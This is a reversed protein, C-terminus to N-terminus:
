QRDMADRVIDMSLQLEYWYGTGVFAPLISYVDAKLGKPDSDINEIPLKVEDKGATVFKVVMGNDYILTYKQKRTKITTLEGEKLEIQLFLGKKDSISKLNGSRDYQYAYFWRKRYVTDTSEFRENHIFITTDGNEIFVNKYLWITGIDNTRMFWMNKRTVILAGSSDYDSVVSGYELDSVYPYEYVSSKGDRKTHKSARQAEDYTLLVNTSDTYYIATLMGNNEWSFRYFNDDQDYTSALNSRGEHYTYFATDKGNKTNVEFSALLKKENFHFLGVNGYSDTIREPYKGSYHLQLEYKNKDIIKRLRGDWDLLTSEQARFFQYGDSTVQMYAGPFETSTLKTGVTLKQPVIWGRKIYILWWKNRLEEDNLLQDKLQIYDEPTSIESHQQAVTVIKEVSLSIDQSNWTEPRFVDKRANGFYCFIFGGGPIPQGYSEYMSGWGQGFWGTDASISNYFRTLEFSSSDEPFYADTYNITVNGNKRDIYQGSVESTFAMLVLTAFWFKFM